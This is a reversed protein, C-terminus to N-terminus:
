KLRQGCGDCYRQKPVGDNVVYNCSPCHQKNDRIGSVPERPQEKQKLKQYEKYAEETISYTIVEQEEYLQKLVDGVHKDQKKTLGLSQRKKWVKYAGDEYTKIYYGVAEEVSCTEEFMEDLESEFSYMACHLNNRARKRESLLQQVCSRIKDDYKEVYYKKYQRLGKLKEMNDEKDIISKVILQKLEEVQKQKM